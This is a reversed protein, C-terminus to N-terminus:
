KFVIKKRIQLLIVPAVLILLFISELSFNKDSFNPSLNTEVVAAQEIMAQHASTATAQVQESTKPTPKRHVEGNHALITYHQSPIQTM